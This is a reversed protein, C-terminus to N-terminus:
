QLGERMARVPDIRMARWAPVLTGALTMLVAVASAVALTTTDTPDVGALLARLLRGAALAGILGAVVGLLALWLGSGIVRAVIQRPTAGLALRVGIERTRASVTFALLGHIGVAALLLALLAFAGLVRVQATRPATQAEVVEALTRLDAIPQEPDAKAIIARVSPALSAPPVASRIVLDQPRYFILGGDPQQSAPLYVQPESDRELGRVRIDRVVGVVTREALGITFQRGLPNIGPWHDRVFSESVVAAMVSEGTDQETVDRGMLVATGIADFYGPTVFRLSAYHPTLDTAASGPMIVPWIGGGMVLPLFSAYAAATVGPLAEVEDVVQRYFAIRRDTTGYKQPALSTRLTLAGEPRFGPDVSQVKWLAQILLGASVLLIVSMAVEATVLWSRMRETTRNTGARAGDALMVFRNGRVARWAPALGFLLATAVTMAGALGLMRLDLAPTEAIPLVTPALRAVLPLASIAVVIGLLGGLGALLLSETFMQRILRNPSAGVATRIAVEGHRALARSLLLNALNTSAILLVCLSAGALALLLMRPQSSVEDRLRVVTAGTEANEKPYQRELQAAVVQLESRAQDLPVGPALLAIGRLYNNNRDDDGNQESFAFPIWFATTREPFYFARPMVGVVTYQVDGLTISRGLVDPDAAFRRTWLEASIAAVRPAGPEDDLPSLARGLLAQRGLVQFINSTVRSGELREPEGTGVLNAATASYAAMAAFSSSMRKWDLYNPPSLEMRSYGRASQNEYLKVLRDADPFPLPRFLVHDAMSFAATTAGLGLACILIVTLAFGPARLLSHAAHRLDQRLIDWHVRVANASIDAVAEAWLVLTPGIGSTSRLRREFIAAMDDGYETRFSAPLLRLLRRYARM